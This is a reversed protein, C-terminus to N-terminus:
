SLEWVRRIEGLWGVSLVCVCEMRASVWLNNQFVSFPSLFPFSLPLLPLSSPFSWSCHFRESMLPFLLLLYPLVYSVLLHFFSFPSRSVSGSGLAQRDAQRCFRWRDYRSSRVAAVSSASSLRTTMAAALVRVTTTMADMTCTM